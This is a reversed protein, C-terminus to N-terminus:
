VTTEHDATKFSAALVFDVEQGECLFQKKRRGEEHMGIKDMVNLMAKNTSMTGATVKRLGGATFLWHCVVTSAEVGYGKKMASPEGIMITLDGVENNRDIYIALNGIHQGTQAIEIAWVFHGGSSMSQQFQRCTDLDHHRHRQESFRVVNPDNLWAVYAQTLHRDLNFPTLKLRETTLEPATSPIM